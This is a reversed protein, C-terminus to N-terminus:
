GRGALLRTLAPTVAWSRALADLQASQVPDAAV